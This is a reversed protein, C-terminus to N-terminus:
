KFHIPIVKRYPKKNVITFASVDCSVIFLTPNEANDKNINTLALETTWTLGNHM